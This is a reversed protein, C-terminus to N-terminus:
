GARGYGMGMGKRIKMPAKKRRGVESVSAESTGEDKVVDMANLQRVIGNVNNGGVALKRPGRKGMVSRTKEPLPKAASVDSDRKKVANAAM